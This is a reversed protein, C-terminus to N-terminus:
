SIRSCANCEPIFEERSGNDKKNNPCCPSDHVGVTTESYIACVWLHRKYVHPDVIDGGLKPIAGDVRFASYTFPKKNM